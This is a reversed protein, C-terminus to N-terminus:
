RSFRVLLYHSTTRLGAPDENGDRLAAVSDQRVSEWREQSVQRRVWRWVPHHNELEAFSSEPSAHTFSIRHPTIAIDRAGQATLLTRVWERDFWRNYPGDSPPLAGFLIDGLVAVPGEQLWATLGVQGGPRVACLMQRVAAAADPAFIVGFVSAVLDYAGDAVPLADAAGEVFTVPLAEDLARQAAIALLATATDVGTVRAGRRAAALALNGTGCAVDLLRHEPGVDLSQVVLDSVSALQAATRSYDGDGWDIM